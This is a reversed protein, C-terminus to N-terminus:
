IKLNSAEEADAEDRQLLQVLRDCAEQVDESAVARHLERIVPYVQLDRFLQRVPATTALLTLTEVHTQLINTNPERTKNPPLLQLEPIMELMEDEDYTEPGALPLLLYPLLNLGGEDTEESVFSKHSATDFCANKIISAVGARRIESQHETFVMIKAIPNAGDYEQRCVLHQRVDEDAALDAFVYALYDFNANKNYDGSSGKVFVDLLQNLVLENSKLVIPSPQTKKVVKKAIDKHKVMNALLM